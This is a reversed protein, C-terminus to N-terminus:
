CVFTSLRVGEGNKKEREFTMGNLELAFQLKSRTNTAMRISLRGNVTIILIAGFWGLVRNEPRNRM